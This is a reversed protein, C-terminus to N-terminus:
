KCRITIAQNAPGPVAGKLLLLNEDSRVDIVLCNKVTCQVGGMHGPMRKGKIVRAPFTSQGVSGMERHCKSGHTMKGRHFGYRKVTGSFGHGRTVGSVDVLTPTGLERLTLVQGVEYKDPDEVPIEKVHYFGHDLGAKRVHGQEPRTMRSFRKPRFGIQLANYGDHELTKKQIVTCPGVELVTVPIAQGLTNFVRTMGLKRGLLGRLTTM